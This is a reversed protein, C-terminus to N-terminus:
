DNADGMLRDLAGQHEIIEQTTTVTNTQAQELAFRSLMHCGTMPFSDFTSGLNQFIPEFGTLGQRRWGFPYLQGLQGRAISAAGVIASRVHWYTPTYGPETQDQGDKMEVFILLGSLKSIQWRWFYQSKIFYQELWFNDPSNGAIVMMEPYDGYFGEHPLFSCMLATQGAKSFPRVGWKAEIDTRHYITEINKGLDQIQEPLLETSTAM